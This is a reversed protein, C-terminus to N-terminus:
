QKGRQEIHRDLIRRILEALGIGLEQAEKSLMEIQRETLYINTKKM